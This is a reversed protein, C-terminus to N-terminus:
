WTRRRQRMMKPHHRKWNRRPSRSRGRTEKRNGARRWGKSSRSNNTSSSNKTSSSNCDTERPSSRRPITSELGYPSLPLLAFSTTFSLFGPGILRRRLSPSVTEKFTCQRPMQLIVSIKRQQLSFSIFSFLDINRSISSLLGRAGNSHRPVRGIEGHASLVFGAASSPFSQFAFPSVLSVSVCLLCLCVSVPLSLCPLSVLLSPYVCCCYLLM